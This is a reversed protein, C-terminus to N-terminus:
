GKRRRLAAIGALGALLLPAAAPVPVASMAPKEESITITVDDAELFSANYSGENLSMSSVSAGAFEAWGAFDGGTYDSAFALFTVTGEVPLGGARGIFFTDGGRSSAMTFSGSGLEFFSPVSIAYILQETTTGTTQFSGIHPVDPNFWTENAWDATYFPSVGTLDFAGSYEIRLNPGDNFINVIAAAHASPASLTLGAALGIAVAHAHM